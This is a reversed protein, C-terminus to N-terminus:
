ELNLKTEPVLIKMGCQCGPRDGPREGKGLQYKKGYKKVHLPDRHTATSPLWIYFEGHYTDAIQSTIEAVTANQVRQVLQSKDELVTDIADQKDLGENQLDEAQQRYTKLVKLAVNTLQKKGLVGSQEVSNLVARNVTLKDTVLREINKKSAMKALIKKPQYVITM